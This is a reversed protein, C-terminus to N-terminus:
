TGWGHGAFYPNFCAYAPRFDFRVTQANADGDAYKSVRFQLGDETTALTDTSYLKKIPVSGLGFAQKHWFLNPQYATSASGLFTIVDGSAMAATVTNYAGAAEYIAPNNVTITAAGGSATVASAVVGTWPVATGGEDYQAARTSLNLMNVGAIRVRDGAKIPLAADVSAVVITQLMTDKHTVYSVNMTGNVTGARDSGAGTTYSPLTTASMVRMGAFSESITAKEHATKVLSSTTPGSGLSRQVSALLSQTYPNVAAYWEADMPVGSSQMVASFEAIDTWADAATGITGAFLGCHKLMFAGFDVELDTKIRTAMPALLQDLQDMKIAEDAESYDVFTTFYNQVTGVAKGAIIDQVTVGSIDGGATRSSIYDTPRKFNVTTGSSPGFQGTLLQTDVNKTLVRASEFKELFVRALKTTINSDFNNAM